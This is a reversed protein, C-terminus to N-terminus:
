ITSNLTYYSSHCPFKWILNYSLTDVEARRAVSCSYSTTGTMNTDLRPTGLHAQTTSGIQWGGRGCREGRRAYHPEMQMIDNAYVKGHSLCFSMVLMYSTHRKGHSVLRVVLWLKWINIYERGPERGRRRRVGCVFMMSCGTDSNNRNEEKQQERHRRCWHGSLLCRSSLFDLDVM